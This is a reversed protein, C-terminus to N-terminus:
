AQCTSMNQRTLELKSVGENIYQVEGNMMESWHVKFCIRSFFIDLSFYFQVTAHKAQPERSLFLFSSSFHCVQFFFDFKSNLLLEALEIKWIRGYM